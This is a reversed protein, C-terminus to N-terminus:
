AFFERVRAEVLNWSAIFPKKTMTILAYDGSIEYGGAVENTSFSGNREDGTFVAGSQAAANKAKGILESPSRGNLPITFTHAM